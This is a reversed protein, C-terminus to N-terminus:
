KEGICYLFASSQILVKNGHPVVGALDTGFYSPTGRYCGAFLLPDFEALYNKVVYDAPPDAYGLLNRRTNVQRPKAPDSIDIVRFGCLAKRDARPRNRLVHSGDTDSGEQTILYQGAIVTGAGLGGPIVGVKAGTKRDYIGGRQAFIHTDTATPLNMHIMCDKELEYVLEGTASDPGTMKIRYCASPETPGSTSKGGVVITDTDDWALINYAPAHKEARFEGLEKGDSLRVIKHHEPTIIVDVPAGDPANLRLHREAMFNNFKWPYTWVMKGTKADFCLMRKKNQEDKVVLRDGVLLPIRSFGAGM